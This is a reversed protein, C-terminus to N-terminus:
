KKAPVEESVTDVTKVIQWTKGFKKWTDVGVEHFGQPKKGAFTVTFRSDYSVDVLDGRKKVGKVSEKGVIKKAKFLPVFEAMAAERALIKGGPQVWSYEKAVMKKFGAFDGSKLAKGIADYRATWEAPIPAAQLSAATAFLVLGITKKFTLIKM